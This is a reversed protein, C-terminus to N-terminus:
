HITYKFCHIIGRGLSTLFRKKKTICIMVKVAFKPKPKLNNDHVIDGYLNVLEIYIKPSVQM